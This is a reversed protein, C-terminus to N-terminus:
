CHRESVVASLIIATPDAREVMAAQRAHGVRSQAYSERAPPAVFVPKCGPPRSRAFVFPADEAFHEQLRRHPRLDLGPLRRRTKAGTADYEERKGPQFQRLADGFVIKGDVSYLM